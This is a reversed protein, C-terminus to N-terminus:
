MSLRLLVLVSTLPSRSARSRMISRWRGSSQCPMSLFFIKQGFAMQIHQFINELRKSEDKIQLDLPIYRKNYCPDYEVNSLLAKTLIQQGDIRSEPPVIIRANTLLQTQCALHYKKSVDEESLFSENSKLKELIEGEEVIVKCKGCTGAGACVSRIGIGATQAAKLITSGKEVDVRKGSPQFEVTVTV